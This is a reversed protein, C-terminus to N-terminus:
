RKRLRNTKFYVEKAILNKEELKRVVKSMKSKSFGLTKAIRDQRPESRIADLVKSEDDSLLEKVKKKGRQIFFFAIGAIVPLALLSWVWQRSQKGEYFVTVDGGTDLSWALRIRKGDTTISDPKPIASPEDSLTSHRPLTISLDMPGDSVFSSRYSRKSGQRTMMGEYLISFETTNRYPFEIIFGSEEEDVLYEGDYLVSIPRYRTFYQVRDYEEHLTVTVDERVAKDSLDVDVTLEAGVAASLLLLMMFLRM